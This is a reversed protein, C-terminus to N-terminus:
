KKDESRKIGAMLDVSIRHTTQIFISPPGLYLCCYTNDNCQHSRKVLAGDDTIKKREGNDKDANEIKKGKSNKLFKSYWNASVKPKRRLKKDDFDVHYLGYRVQYGGLFEFVDLFSWVFYGKTNSGDRIASLTANIYGKLYDVRLTDNLSENSPMGLGNEQVYIPLNGYARNLYGLLSELGSPVIPLVFPLLQGSPTDDKEVRFNVSMDTYFERPNPAPGNSNDELYASSYHNLGFFDCAGKVLESEQKTFSPLRSGVYEKMVEPYDGFVLPNAIWGIYFDLARQTAKVDATSNTYPVFWVCNINIGIEGKQRAQYKEQYLRYVSAHALLSNHAVIYPEVSSNGATCNFLGMPPTCRQPPFLGNDYSAVAMINPENLTTWHTVRDGFERFCLDAYATFDEVIKPSLWGKYEDELVQPLELHYITVHPEIGHSILENILNNYYRLGKPNIAGRGNPLLRPWSISFRYAELGMDSMLKVDEKYKHYQGAATDGTSKDPMIGAHTYTDWTSPSRGDEAAAGEAQYASTGAGFVFSKPFDDRSFDDTNEGLSVLSLIVIAFLILYSNSVGLM